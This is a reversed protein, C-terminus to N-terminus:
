VTMLKMRRSDSERIDPVQCQLVRTEFFGLRFRPWVHSSIVFIRSEINETWTKQQGYGPCVFGRPVTVAEGLGRLYSLARGGANQPWVPRQRTWDNGTM